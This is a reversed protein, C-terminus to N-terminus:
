RWSRSQYPTFQVLVGRDTGSDGPLRDPIHSLESGCRGYTLSAVAAQRARIWIENETFRRSLSGINPPPYCTTHDCSPLPLQGREIVARSLSLSNMGSNGFPGSPLSTPNPCIRIRQGPYSPRPAPMLERHGTSQSVENGYTRNRSSTALGNVAQPPHYPIVAPLRDGLPDRHHSPFEPIPLGETGGDVGPLLDFADTMLYDSQLDDTLNNTSLHIETSVQDGVSHNVRRSPEPPPNAHAQSDMPFQPTHAIPLISCDRSSGCGHIYVRLERPWAFM